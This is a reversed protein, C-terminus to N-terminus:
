DGATARGTDARDYREMFMLQALRTAEQETLGREATWAAFRRAHSLADLDPLPYFVAHARIQAAWTPNIAALVSINQPIWIAFRKRRNCSDCAVVTNYVATVGGHREPVVHELIYKEAGTDGCYQCVRGDRAFVADYVANWAQSKGYIM